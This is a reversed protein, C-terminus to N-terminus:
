LYHNIEVELSVKEIMEAISRTMSITTMEMDFDM